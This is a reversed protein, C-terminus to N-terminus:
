QIPHCYKVHIWLRDREEDSPRDEPREVAVCSVQGQECLVQGSWEMRELCQTAYIHNVKLSRDKVKIVDGVRIVQPIGESGVVGSVITVLYDKHYHMTASNNMVRIAQPNFERTKQQAAPSGVAERDVAPPACGNVAVVL